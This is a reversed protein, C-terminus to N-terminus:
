QFQFIFFIILSAKQYKFKVMKKILFVFATLFSLALVLHLIFFSLKNTLNLLYAFYPSLWSSYLYYKSVEGEFINEFPNKAIELMNWLAPHYWLGTKFLSIAFLLFILKKQSLNTLNNGLNNLFKNM